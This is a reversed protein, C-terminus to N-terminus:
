DGSKFCQGIDVEGLFMYVLLVADYWQSIFPPRNIYTDRATFHRITFANNQSYCPVLCPNLIHFLHVDFARVASRLIIYFLAFKALVDSALNAAFPKDSSRPLRSRLHHSRVIEGSRRKGEESVRHVSLRGFLHVDRRFRCAKFCPRLIPKRSQQNGKNHRENQSEETTKDSAESTARRKRVPWLNERLAHRM